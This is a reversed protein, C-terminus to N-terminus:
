ASYKMSSTVAPCVRVLHGRCCRAPRIGSNVAIATSPREQGKEGLWDAGADAFNEIYIEPKEIMFHVDLPLSTTKRTARVVGPGLTINPVFHGDMVDVHIWDAGALEVAGVEESLRGFDSSLISAALKKM